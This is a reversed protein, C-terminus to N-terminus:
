TSSWTHWRFRWGSEDHSQGSPIGLQMSKVAEQAMALRAQETAEDCTVLLFDNNVYTKGDYGLRRRLERRAAARLPKLQDGPVGVVEASGYEEVAQAILAALLAIRDDPTPDPFRRDLSTLCRRCTPAFASEQWARLPGGDGAAMGRWEIGCLTRLSWGPEVLLAQSYNAISEVYDRTSRDLWTAPIAARADAWGVSTTILHVALGSDTQGLLLQEGEVVISNLDAHEPSM